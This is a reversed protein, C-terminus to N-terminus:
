GPKQFGLRETELLELTVRHSDELTKLLRRAAPLANEHGDRELDEIIKRQQGIRELGEREHQELEQLHRNAPNMRPM